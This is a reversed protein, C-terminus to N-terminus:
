MPADTKTAVGRLLNIIAFTHNRHKVLVTETPLIEEVRHQGVIELFRKRPHIVPPFPKHPHHTFLPIPIHCVRISLRETVWIFFFEGGWPLAVYSM